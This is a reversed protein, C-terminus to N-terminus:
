NKGWKGLYPGGAFGNVVIIWSKTHMLMNSFALNIVLKNGSTRLTKHRFYQSNLLLRDILIFVCIGSTFYFWLSIALWHFWASSAPLYQQWQLFSQTQFVLRCCKKLYMNSTVRIFNLWFVSPKMPSLWDQRKPWKQQFARSDFGFAKCVREEQPRSVFSFSRPAVKRM